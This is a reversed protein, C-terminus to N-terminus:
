HTSLVAALTHNEPDLIEGYAKKLFVVNSKTIGFLNQIVDNQLMKLGNRTKKLGFGKLLAIALPSREVNIQPELFLTEFFNLEVIWNRDRSLLFDFRVLSM